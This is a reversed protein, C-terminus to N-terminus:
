SGVGRFFRRHIPCYGNVRIAERHEKTPYGKNRGFNYQPYLRDYYEMLRDREV